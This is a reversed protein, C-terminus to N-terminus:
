QNINLQYHIPDDQPWKKHYLERAQHHHIPETSLWTEGQYEQDLEQWNPNLDQPPTASEVLYEILFVQHTKVLWLTKTNM